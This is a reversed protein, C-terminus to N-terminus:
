ILTCLACECVYCCNCPHRQGHSRARQEHFAQLVISTRFNLVRPNLVRRTGSGPMRPHLWPVIFNHSTAPKYRKSTWALRLLSLGLQKLSPQSVRSTTDLVCHACPLALLCLICQTGFIHIPPPWPLRPLPFVTGHANGDQALPSRKAQCREPVLHAPKQEPGGALGWCAAWRWDKSVRVCALLCATYAKRTHWCRRSAQRCGM